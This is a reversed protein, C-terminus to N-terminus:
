RCHTQGVRGSRQPAGVVLLDCGLAEWFLLCPLLESWTTGKSQLYTSFEACVSGCGPTMDRVFRPQWRPSSWELWMTRASAYHVLLLWASQVDEVMCPFARWCHTIIHASCRWSPGCLIRTALLHGWCKSAVVIHHCIRPDGGCWQQLIQLFREHGPPSEGIANWFQTKGEYVQIGSEAWLSEELLRHIDCVCHPMSVTYVDDLFAFLVEGECLSRQVRELAAHQGLSFLLPMMADGQEWGEGQTITVRGLSDGWLYHSPTGCFMSVFPVAASGGAVNDLAQLMARRSILDFASIGDISMVTARPDLETLGQLAHAICECGCKTSMAYQYPATARQVSDMLQQSM